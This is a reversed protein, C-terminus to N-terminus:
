SIGFLRALSAPGDGAGRELAEEDLVAGRSANILIASPKM